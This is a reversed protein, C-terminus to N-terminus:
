LRTWLRGAQAQGLLDEHEQQQRGQLKSLVAGLSQIDTVYIKVAGPPPKLGARSMKFPEHHQLGAPTAANVM